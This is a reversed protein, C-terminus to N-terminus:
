TLNTYSVPTPHLVGALQVGHELHNGLGTGIRREPIDFHLVERNVFHDDGNDAVDGSVVLHLPDKGPPLGFHGFRGPDGPHCIAETLVAHGSRCWGRCGSETPTGGYRWVEM